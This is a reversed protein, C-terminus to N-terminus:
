CKEESQKLCVIQDKLEDLQDLQDDKEQKVLLLEKKLISM